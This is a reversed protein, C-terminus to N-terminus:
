SICPQWESSAQLFTIYKETTKLFARIKLPPEIIGKFLIEKEVKVEKGFTEEALQTKM